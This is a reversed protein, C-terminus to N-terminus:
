SNREKFVRFIYMTPIKVTASPYLALRAGWTYRAARKTEGLRIRQFWKSVYNPM